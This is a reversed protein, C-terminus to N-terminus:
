GAGGASPAALRENGTRVRLDGTPRGLERLELVVSAGDERPELSLTTRGIRLGRPVRSMGSGTWLVVAVRRAEVAQPSSAAEAVTDPAFWVPTRLSRDPTWRVLVTGRITRGLSELVGLSMPTAAPDSALQALAAVRFGPDGITAVASTTLDARTVRGVLRIGDVVAAGERVRGGRGRELRLTARWASTDGLVLARCDMWGGDEMVPTPAQNPGASRWTEGAAPALVLVQNLGTRFDVLPRVGLVQRAYPLGEVAVSESVLDGIAFGECPSTGGELLALPESVVVRGTKTLRSEPAHVALWIREEYAALGGVVLDCANGNQDEVVHGGIREDAGTILAVDVADRPPLAPASSLRLARMAREFLGPRDTVRERFPVRAVRGVYVDGAVVPQDVAVRAPDAVRVRIIDRSRDRRAEVEGPIPDIGVADFHRRLAQSEPWASRLVARELELSAAAESVLVEDDSGNTSPGRALAVARPAVGLPAACRAPLALLDDVPRLAGIPRIALVGSGVMLLVAVRRTRVAAM